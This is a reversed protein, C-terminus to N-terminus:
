PRLLALFRDVEGPATQFSTVLRVTRAEANDGPMPWPHFRAGADKLRTIAAAPLRVFIENAEPTTRLSAGPVDTLGSALRETMANAHRALRLWLDGALYAEL